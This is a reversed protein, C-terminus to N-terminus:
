QGTLDFRRGASLFNAPARILNEQCPISRCAVSYAVPELRFAFKLVASWRLGEPLFTLEPRLSLPKPQRRLFVIRFPRSSKEKSPLTNPVVISNAYMLNDLAFHLYSLSACVNSCPLVSVVLCHLKGEREPFLATM